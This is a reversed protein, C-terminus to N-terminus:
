WLLSASILLKVFFFKFTKYNNLWVEYVENGTINTKVEIKEHNLIPQGQAHAHQVPLQRQVSPLQRVV